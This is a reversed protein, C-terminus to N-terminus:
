VGGALARVLRDVVGVVKANSTTYNNALMVFALDRGSATRVYGSLARVHSLSGTKARVPVGELRYELTGGAEGPYPLAGFFTDVDPRRYMRLLTTSLMRATVLNKRSLGSGDFMSLGTTDGGASLFGRVVAQSGRASGGDSLTRFVQEAYFNNSRTGLVSLIDSLPPSTHVALTDAGRWDPRRPLDDVDARTLGSTDIGARALALAFADLTFRTPDDVPLALDGERRGVTGSIEVIGTGPLRRLGTGLGRTRDTARDRRRVTLAGEPAVSADAPGPGFRVTALNDRYSLAGIPAGLYRGAQVTLYDVDWGEAYPNDDFRDDDGVLTGEMRVVGRARLAAAWADLPDPGDLEASGFSPDGAGVIGFTGRLVTGGGQGNAEETGDFLLPTRYRFDAGLRDLAVAVTLVKQNSAPLLPREPNRSFLVEGTRADAVVVGWLVSAQSSDLVAAVRALAASPPDAGTLSALALVAFLVLAPLAAAPRLPSTPMPRPFRTRAATNRRAMQVCRRM